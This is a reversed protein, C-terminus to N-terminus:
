KKDGEAELSSKIKIIETKALDNDCIELERKFENFAFDPRNKKLYIMGLYYHCERTKPNINLAEIFNNEAKDLLNKNYYAISILKKLSGTNTTLKTGNELTKITKDFLNSKNYIKGLFSYAIEIYLYNSAYEHEIAKTFLKEAENLDGNFYCQTGNYILEVIENKFGSIAKATDKEQSQSCGILCIVFVFYGTLLYKM